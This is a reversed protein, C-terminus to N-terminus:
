LLLAFNALLIQLTSKSEQLSPVVTYITMICSCEGWGLDRLFFDLKLFDTAMNESHVEVILFSVRHGHLLHAGIASNVGYEGLGFRPDTFTFFHNKQNVKPM